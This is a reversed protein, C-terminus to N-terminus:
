ILHEREAQYQQGLAQKSAELVKLRDDVQKCETQYEAELKLLAKQQAVAWEEITKQYEDKVHHRAHHTLPNTVIKACQQLAKKLFKRISMNIYEKTIIM